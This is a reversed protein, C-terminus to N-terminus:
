NYYERVIITGDAGAGGAHGTTGATGGGGGSGIAYSYTAAPNPIVAKL